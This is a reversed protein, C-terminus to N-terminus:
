CNQKAKTPQKRLKWLQKKYNNAYFNIDQVWMGAMDERDIGFSQFMRYIFKRNIEDIREQDVIRDLYVEYERRENM